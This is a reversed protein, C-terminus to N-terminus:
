EGRRMEQNLTLGFKQSIVAIEQKTQTWTWAEISGVEVKPEVKPKEEKTANMAPAPAAAAADSMALSHNDAPQREACNLTCSTHSSRDRM